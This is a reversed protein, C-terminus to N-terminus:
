MEKIAAIEEVEEDGLHDATSKLAGRDMKYADKIPLDQIPIYLEPIMHDPLSERLKKDVQRVTKSFESDKSSHLKDWQFAVDPEGDSKEEGSSHERMQLFAVLKQHGPADDPNRVEM